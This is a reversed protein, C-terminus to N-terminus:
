DGIIKDMIRASNLCMPIGAGPHVSGGVFYLDKIRRSFNPHRLFAAFKSNSSNGYVAGFASLYKQEIMPPTLVEECEILKEVDINLMRQVKAFVNKRSREVIEEWNQGDVTPATVLVFWNECGQPADTKVHKSTICIYVSPDNSITHDDFVADYEERDNKAFLMNHVDLDPHVAKVGWYFGLISSSKPQELTLKPKHQDPLLKHYTYYVDMNSVVVDFSRQGQDTRIGVAKRDQVLIERVSSNYHFKVGMQEALKVLAKVISYMGEDPIYAGKTIVLHSILNLTAPAVLPNSGVYSAFHDFLQVLNPDKFFKRNDRHMSTFAGIKHFKLIGYLVRKTLYNKFVHLSNEIFVENTIDFKAEIDRTYDRFSKEPDKSKAVLEKAFEEVDAHANIVTGDEFFYRFNMGLRTYTFYDRPNKGCLTFLEDILQPMTFVSPGMDFRYGNSRKERLKGGPYDNAEFVEVNYGRRALHIAAALGGIGSGIVVCQKM